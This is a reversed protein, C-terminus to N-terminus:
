GPAERKLLSWYSTKKLMKKRADKNVLKYHLSEELATQSELVNVYILACLIMEICLFKDEFKRLM